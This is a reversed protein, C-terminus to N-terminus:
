RASPLADIMVRKKGPQYDLRIVSLGTTTEYGHILEYIAAQVQDRLQAQRILSAKFSASGQETSRDTLKATSQPKTLPMNSDSQESNRVSIVYSITGM